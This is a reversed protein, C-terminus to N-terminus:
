WCFEHTKYANTEFLDNSWTYSIGGLFQEKLSM